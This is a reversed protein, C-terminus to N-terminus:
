HGWLQEEGCQIRQVGATIFTLTNYESRDNYLFPMTSCRATPYSLINFKSYYHIIWHIANYQDANYQLIASRRTIKCQTSPGATQLTYLAHVSWSNSRNTSPPTLRDGSKNGTCDIWRYCFFYAVWGDMREGMWGSVWGDVWGDMWEGMWGTKLLRAGSASRFRRTGDLWGNTWGYMWWYNLWNMFGVTLCIRRWAMLGDTREDLRGIMWGDMLWDILGYVM